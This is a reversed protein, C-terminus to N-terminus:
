FKTIVVWKTIAEAIIVVELLQTFSVSCLITYEQVLLVLKSLKVEIQVVFYLQLHLVWYEL